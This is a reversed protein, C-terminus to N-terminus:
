ELTSPSSQEPEDFQEHQEMRSAREIARDRASGRFMEYKQFTCELEGNFLPIKCSPRLGFNKMAEFNSSILWVDYGSYKQKFCDGLQKYFMEIQEKKLREGYPPNTVVLGYDEAPPNYDFISKTSIYMKKLLGAAKVNNTAIEISQHSIDSAFIAYEYDREMSDDNYINQLLEPEFDLWNEFGFKERFVGPPIGYAMLAAEIAITGSGCMPDIFTSDGKFGALKLLGAALVENIPAVDQGVRYGRKHLSEGSSDLSITCIDNYVHVHFQIDPNKPDVFPRRGFRDRFQDAIADKLKLAVYRSHNFYESNVVGDVAFRQSLEMVSTWDFKKANGYFEEVTHAKFVYIPKLIRIATQLRFNAKYLFEKDGNFKVSRCGPIVDQAGLAVLEDALVGELGQFTKAIMEFQESM